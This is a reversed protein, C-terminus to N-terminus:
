GLQLVNGNRRHAGVMCGINWIDIKYDWPAELTVEPARYSNPQVCEKQNVSDGFVAAGFDCLVPPGLPGRPFIGRSEYITRGEVEKRPCPNQMEKEEMDALVSLDSKLIGFM